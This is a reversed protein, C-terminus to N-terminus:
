TGKTAPIRISTGAPINMTKLNNAKAIYWWLSADGYFRFALNDCRDGESSIMHLDSNREPIRSYTTTDYAFVSTQKKSLLSKKRINTKDYRSM